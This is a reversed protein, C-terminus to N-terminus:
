YDYYIENGEEGGNGDAYISAYCKLLAPFFVKSPPRCPQNVALALLLGGGEADSRAPVVYPAKEFFAQACKSASFTTHSSDAKILFFSASDKFDPHPGFGIGACGGDMKESSSVHHRFLDYMFLLDAGAM